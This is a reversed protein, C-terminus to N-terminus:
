EGEFISRLAAHAADTGVQADNCDAAAMLALLKEKTVGSDVLLKTEHGSEELMSLLLHETRIERCQREDASLSAREFVRGLDATVPLDKFIPIPTSPPHWCEAQKRISDVETEIGLQKHLEPAACLIAILLHETDISDAGARGAEKRAIM